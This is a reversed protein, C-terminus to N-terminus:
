LHLFECICTFVWQDPAWDSYQRARPKAPEHCDPCLPPEGHTEHPRKAKQSM